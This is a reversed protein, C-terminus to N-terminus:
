ILMWHFNPDVFTLEKVTIFLQSCFLTIQKIYMYIYQTLTMNSMKIMEIMNWLLVSINYFTANCALVFGGSWIDNVKKYIFEWLTLNWILPTTTVRYLGNGLLNDGQIAWEEAFQWETYGMGGCIIKLHIVMDSLTEFDTTSIISLTWYITQMNGVKITFNNMKLLSKGKISAFNNGKMCLEIFIVYIKGWLRNLYRCIILFNYKLENDKRNSKSSRTITQGDYPFYSTNFCLKLILDPIHL